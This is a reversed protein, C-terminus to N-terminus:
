PALACIHINAIDTFSKNQSSDWISTTEPLRYYNNILRQISGYARGFVQARNLKEKATNSESLLSSM